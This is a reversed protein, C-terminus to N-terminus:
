LRLERLQVSLQPMWTSVTDWVIALNISSYSHAVQNRMGRMKVWPIDPNAAVFEPFRNIIKGACEGIVILKLLIGDQRLEDSLFDDYTLKGAYKLAGDLAQMIDNIYVLLKEDTV